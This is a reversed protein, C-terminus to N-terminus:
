GLLYYRLYVYVMSLALSGLMVPVGFRLFRVFSVKFGSKEVLGLAIVNASAGIATGNGGLCAGLALSWWVPLMVPHRLVEGGQGPFIEHAVDVLLPNMTAVFPINDVIASCIGSFWVMVLSLVQMSHQSPDTLGIMGISLDKIVGTKILGGIMIFLGIFFFLTEWEVERLIGEPELGSILLMVAAGGLAVTAPEYHFVGHLMFGVITLALVVLSRRLLGHDSILRNEDMAMLRAKAEPCVTLRKKYLWKWGLIWAGFIVVVAPAMNILFDMYTLGAKSGILINPPDGILTATGGINSAFIETIIFPVPDLDLQNAILMTVPAILLITTVNDLFASGVATLLALLVMIAFPEGKARKATRVALYQFVGTKALINVIIMMGILLFVVNWDVGLHLDHFAEEQVLVKTLLVAAAGALAVKTKDIQESVILGYALVFIAISVWYM